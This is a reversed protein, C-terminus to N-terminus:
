SQLWKKKISAHPNQTSVGDYLLGSIIAKTRMRRANYIKIEWNRASTRSHKRAIAQAESDRQTTAGVGLPWGQGLGM